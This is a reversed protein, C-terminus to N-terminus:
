LSGPGTIKWEIRAVGPLQALSELFSPPETMDRRQELIVLCTQKRGGEKDIMCEVWHGIRGEGAIIRANVEDRPFDKGEMELTLKGQQPKHLCREFAKLGQLIGLGIVLAALGL